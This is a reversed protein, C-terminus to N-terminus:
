EVVRDLGQEGEGGAGAGVGEGDKAAKAAQLVGAAKM